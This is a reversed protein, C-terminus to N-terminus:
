KQYKDVTISPNIRIIKERNHVLEKSNLLLRETLRDMFNNNVNKHKNIEIKKTKSQLRQYKSEDFPVAKDYPFLIPVTNDINEHVKKFPRLLPSNIESEKKLKMELQHKIHNHRHKTKYFNHFKTSEQM